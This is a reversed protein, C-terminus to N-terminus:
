PDSSPTLGLAERVSALAQSAEVLENNLKTCNDLVESLEQLKLEMEANNKEYVTYMHEKMQQFM